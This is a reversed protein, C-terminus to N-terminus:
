EGGGDKEYEHDSKVDKHGGRGLGGGGSGGEVKTGFKPGDRLEIVEDRLFWRRKLSM